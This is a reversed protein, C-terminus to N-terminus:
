QKGGAGGSIGVAQRRCRWIGVAQTRRRSIGVAQRPAELAALRRCRWINEQVELVHVAHKGGSGGNNAARQKRCRCPRYLYGGAICKVEDTAPPLFSKM